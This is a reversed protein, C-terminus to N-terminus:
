RVDYRRHQHTPWNQPASNYGEIAMGIKQLTCYCSETRYKSMEPELSWGFSMLILAHAIRSPKRYCLNLLAAPDLHRVDCPQSSGNGLVAHRLLTWLPSTFICVEVALHFASFGSNDKVTMSLGAELLSQTCTACGSLVARHLLTKGWQDCVHVNVNQYHLLLQVASCRNTWTAIQLATLYIGPKVANIDAGADLAIAIEDLWNEEVTRLLRADIEFQEEATMSGRKVSAGLPLWRPLRLPQHLDSFVGPSFSRSAANAAIRVTDEDNISNSNAITPAISRRITITTCSEHILGAEPEDPGIQRDTM